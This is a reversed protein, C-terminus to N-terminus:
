YAELSKLAPYQDSFHHKIFDCEANAYYGSDREYAEDIDQTFSLEENAYDINKIYQVKGDNVFRFVSM